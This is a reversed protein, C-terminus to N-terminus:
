SNYIRVTQEIDKKMKLRLSVPLIIEVNFGWSRLRMIVNNDEVRYCLKYYADNPYTDVIRLVQQLTIHSNQASRFKLQHKIFSKVSELNALCEFTNHRVTNKIYREDYNKDFRLLMVDQDGYFKFGYARELEDRIYNPSYLYNEQEGQYIKEKLFKTISSYNWDLVNLCLIRELRFAYWEFSELKEPQPTEGWAYLYFARQFYHIAVPYVTYNQILNRSVSFYRLKVPLIIEKKWVEKLCDAWDAAKDQLHEKAVYEAQIFLRQTGHFKTLLFQTISSFGEYFFDSFDETKVCSLDINKINAINAQYEEIKFTKKYKGRCSDSKVLLPKEIATLYKFNNRLTKDVVGFLCSSLIKNSVLESIKYRSKFESQWHNKEVSFYEGLIFYELTRDRLRFVKAEIKQMWTICDFWESDIEVFLDSEPCYLSNEIVWLRCATLMLTCFNDIQKAESKQRHSLRILEPVLAELRAFSPLNM